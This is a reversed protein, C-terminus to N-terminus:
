TGADFIHLVSLVIGSPCENMRGDLWWGRYVFFLGGEASPGVLPQLQCKVVGFWWWQESANYCGIWRTWQSLFWGLIVRVNACLPSLGPRTGSVLLRFNLKPTM